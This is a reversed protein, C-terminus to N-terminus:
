HLGGGAQQRSRALEWGHMRAAIVQGAYENSEDVERVRQLQFYRGVNIVSIWYNSPDKLSM